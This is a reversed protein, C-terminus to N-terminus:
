SVGLAALMWSRGLATRIRVTVGDTELSVAGDRDTRFIRAGAATLRALVDPAPQGFVNGRGVSILAVQPRMAQVLQDSTSTRSGHHGAKLIRIPSASLDAPLRQDFEAGADGTLLIDVRGYRIRLVLSDDNRSRQREWDPEPPHVAEIVVRGGVDLRAGSRM